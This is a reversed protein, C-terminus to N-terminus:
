KLVQGTERSWLVLDLEDVDIGCADALDEFRQELERYRRLSLSAPPPTCMGLRVLNRIIHRDVIVLGRVGINRLFHSAEKMGLGTIEAALADRLEKPPLGSHLLGRIQPFRQKMAMLRRAKTRHFRVYVPPGPHLLPEPDIDRHEFDSAVLSDLVTMCHTASSQPTMMCYCLEYFHRGPPVCRFEDLRARIEDRRVTHLERLEDIDAQSPGHVMM